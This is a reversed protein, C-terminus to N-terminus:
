QGGKNEAKAVIKAMMAHINDPHLSTRAEIGLAEALMPFYKDFGQPKVGKAKAFSLVTAQLSRLTEALIYTRYAESVPGINGARYHEM